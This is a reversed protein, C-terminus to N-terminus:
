TQGADQVHREVGSLDVHLPFPRHCTAHVNRGTLTSKQRNHESRSSPM